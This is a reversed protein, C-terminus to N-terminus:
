SAIARDSVRRWNTGDSFVPIAGGAEDSCYVMAGAGLASASPLTAATFSDPRMSLARINALGDGGNTVRLVGASERALGTDKTSGANANGWKFQFGPWMNFDVQGMNVNNGNSIRLSGLDLWGSGTSGNTVRIMGSSARVLGVDPAGSGSATSSWTTHGTSTHRVGGAGANITMSGQNVTVGNGNVIFWNDIGSLRVRFQSDGLYGFGANAAALSTHWQQNDIYQKPAAELDASPDGALTLSGTM